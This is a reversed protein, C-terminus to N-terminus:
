FLEVSEGALNHRDSDLLIRAAFEISGDRRHTEGNRRGGDEATARSEGGPDSAGDDDGHVETTTTAATGM